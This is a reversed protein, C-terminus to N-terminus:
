MYGVNMYIVMKNLRFLYSPVRIFVSSWEKDWYNVCVQSQSRRSLRMERIAECCYM